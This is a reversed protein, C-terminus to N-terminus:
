EEKICAIALEDLQSQDVVNPAESMLDSANQVKPFAIVDKINDTGLLLMVLRDLGFAIGGHPPTGYNFAEVFFGFKQKIQDENFGLVNFMKSQLESSHIRVSGGGSEYGNIVLDYAQSRVSAPNSDLLPIDEELPATFPHHCSVLRGQEESWELLPFNYVWLVDYQSKDILNFKNALHLRLAGLSAFVTSNEDAVIFIIDGQKADVKNLIKNFEEESFFKSISSTPGEERMQIWVLGKARYTKVYEALADIEKRSLKNELGKANIARVSGKNAVADSFVKFPCDKVLDSIDVLEMGFRTDPKDSGFRNMAESYEMRRLPLKLDIGKIDKLLKHILGEAMDMVDHEDRIFSMEIDVQTFEPQRDARLDEDRFCRAIQYYKDYGAIMLLQKYIQPSQPLAYFCGHHIRSPVLYDRAGEPTSKCLYPTEIDIFGNDDLYERISRTILSRTYINKQLDRRRLDLYRYKLKLADNVYKDDDILFPTTLAKSIIRLENAVIEIRGTEAEENIQSGVRERIKGKVALVFENRISEAKEFGERGVFNEDFVVQVFGTRDRLDVFILSGLNRRRSAWGMVVIEEGVKHEISKACYCTRTLGQLSDM